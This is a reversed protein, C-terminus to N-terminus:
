QMPIFGYYRMYKAVNEDKLPDYDANAYDLHNATSIISWLVNDEYPANIDGRRGYLLAIVSDKDIGLSKGDCIADWIMREAYEFLNADSAKLLIYQLARLISDWGCRDEELLKELTDEDSESDEKCADIIKQALSSMSHTHDNIECTDKLCEKLNRFAKETSSEFELFHEFKWPSPNPPYEWDLSTQYEESLADLVDNLPQPVGLETPDIPGCDFRTKTFSDKTNPWLYDGGWEFFFSIIYKEKAMNDM